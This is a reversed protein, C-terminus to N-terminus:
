EVRSKYGTYINEVSVKVDSVNIGSTEEVAKKVKVQLEESLTPIHTEALVIAKIFISVDEGLKRVYAKTDKIGSIKKSASLAINEIANLSIRIEGVNNVKSISKKERESRVGSFLFMISLAFFILEIIFMIVNSARNPLVFESIYETTNSFLSHNLTMAMLIVSVVTLCFAYIALITRFLINM